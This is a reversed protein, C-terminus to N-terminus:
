GSIWKLTATLSSGLLSLCPADLVPRLDTTPSVCFSPFGIVNVCILSESDGNVRGLVSSVGYFLGMRGPSKFGPDKQHM